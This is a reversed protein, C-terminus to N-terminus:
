IARPWVRVALGALWDQRDQVTDPSWSKYRNIQSTIPLKSAKYVKNKISFGKTGLDQNPKRVLLAQNGLRFRNAEATAKTFNMGAPIIEAKPLIHELTLSRAADYEAKGAERELLDNIESLLYRSVISNDEEFKAFDRRFVEDSPVKEGVAAVLAKVTRIGQDRVVTAAEPYFNELKSSGLQNTVQFRVGWSVLLRLLKRLEETKELDFTDLCALLLPKYQEFRLKLLSAVLAKGDEGLPKWLDADSHLIAAYNASSKDLESLLDIADERTQIRRRIEKYLLRERTLGHKSSWFHHIFRTVITERSESAVRGVARTWLTKAEETRKEGALRFLYNKLLDATALEVGRDNLTEFIQFATLDDSVLLPIIKTRYRVFKDWKELGSVGTLDGIEFVLERVRDYAKAIRRHSHLSNRTIKAGVRETSRPEAIVYRNFFSQDDAGMLLRPEKNSSWDPETYLVRDAIKGAVDKKGQEVLYDRIAAYFMCFTALRQQGDVIKPSDGGTESSLVIWGLFYEDSDIFSKLDDFLEEIQPPKWAYARQNPPVVFKTRRLFDGIGIPEGPAQIM